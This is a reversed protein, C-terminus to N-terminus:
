WRLGRKICTITTAYGITSQGKFGVIPTSKQLHEGTKPLIPRQKTGLTSITLTVQSFKTNIYKLISTSKLDNDDKLQVYDSNSDM